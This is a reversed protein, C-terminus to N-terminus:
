WRDPDAHAQRYDSPSMGTQKKFAAFFNSLTAFGTELGLTKIPIDQDEVLLRKAREIRLRHLENYISTNLEKRFRRELTQRCIDTAATIDKVSIPKHSNDAIFRLAKQVNIDGVAFVDSSERPILGKPYIRIPANPSPKFQLIDAMVRAAEYGTRMYNMDISSLTPAIATCITEQNGLSVTALDTPVQWGMDRALTVFVRAGMDSNTILGVPPKWKSLATQLENRTRQWSERSSEANFPMERIQCPIDYQSALSQIGTRLLDSVVQGEDLAAILRPMGRNILHEAAMHGGAEFDPVISPVTNLFASGIMVNVMPIGRESAAAFTDKQIRGIIGDFHIGSELLIEPYRIVQMDWNTEHAQAFDQVGKVVEYHRRLPWGLETVIAIRPQKPTLRSM